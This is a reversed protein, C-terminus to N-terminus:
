RHGLHDKHATIYINEEWNDGLSIVTYVDEKTFGNKWLVYPFSLQDRKSENKVEQWWEDMIAICGPKNHRRLLLSCIWSGTNEPFGERWYKSMQNFIVDRSEVTQAMRHSAERYIDLHGSHAIVGIGLDKLQRFESDLNKKIQINGDYYISRDYEPFLLHANIKCYRNMRTYDKVDSPCVERIDIWGKYNGIDTPKKDSIYYFDYMEAVEDDPFHINDYNNVVCTYAITKEKMFPFYRHIVRTDGSIDSIPILKTFGLGRLQTSIENQLAVRVNIIIIIKSKEDLYDKYDLCFFTDYVPRNFKEPNNDFFCMPAIGLISLVERCTTQALYGCGWVCVKFGAKYDTLLEDVSIYKSNVVGFNDNNDINQM